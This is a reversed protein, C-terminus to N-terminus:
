TLEMSKHYDFRGATEGVALANKIETNLRIVDGLRSMGQLLYSVDGFWKL